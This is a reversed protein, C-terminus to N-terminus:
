NESGQEGLLNRIQKVLERMTPSDGQTESHRRARACFFLAIQLEIIDNPDPNRAIEATKEFSGAIDYWNIRQAFSTITWLDEDPLPVEELTLHTSKDEMKEEESLPNDHLRDLGIKEWM